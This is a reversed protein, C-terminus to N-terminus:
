NRQASARGAEKKMGKLVAKLQIEIEKPPLSSSIVPVYVGHENKAAILLFVDAEGDIQSKIFDINFSFFKSGDSTQTIVDALSIKETM